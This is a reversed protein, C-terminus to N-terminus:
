KKDKRLAFWQGWFYGAILIPISMVGVVGYRDRWWEVRWEVAKFFIALVMISTATWSFVNLNAKEQESEIRAGCESCRKM